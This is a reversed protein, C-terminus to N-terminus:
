QGKQATIYGKNELIPVLRNYSIILAWAIFNDKKDANKILNEEYESVYTLLHNHKEMDTVWRKLYPKIAECYAQFLDYNNTKMIYDIHKLLWKQEADDALPTQLFNLIDNFLSKEEDDKFILKSQNNQISQSCM